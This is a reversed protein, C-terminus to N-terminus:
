WRELNWIYNIYYIPTKRESKSWETYYAGTEDVENSSIWIVATCPNELQPMRAEATSACPSLQKSAHPIKARWGPILGADGADCPSKKVVPCGPFDGLYLNKMSSWIDCDPWLCSTQPCPFSLVSRPRCFQDSETGLLPQPWWKHERYNERKWFLLCQDPGASRM